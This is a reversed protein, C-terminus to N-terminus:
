PLEFFEVKDVGTLYLPRGSQGDLWQNVVREVNTFNIDDPGVGDKFYFVVRLKDKSTTLRHVPPIQCKTTNVQESLLDALAQAASIDGKLVAIAMQEALKSDLTVRDSFGRSTM